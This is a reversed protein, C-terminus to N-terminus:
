ATLNQRQASLRQPVGFVWKRKCFDWLGDNLKLIASAQCKNMAAVRSSEGFAVCVDTM